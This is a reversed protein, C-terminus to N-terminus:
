SWSSRWTAEAKAIAYERNRKNFGKSLSQLQQMLSRLRNRQSVLHTDTFELESLRLYVAVIQIRQTASKRGEENMKGMEVVLNLINPPGGMNEAAESQSAAEMLPEPLQNHIIGARELLHTARHSTQRLVEVIAEEIESYWDLLVQPNKLSPPSSGPINLKEPSSSPPAITELAVSNYRSSGPDELSVWAPEDDPEEPDEDVDEEADDDIDDEDLDEEPNQDFRDSEANPEEDFDEQLDPEALVMQGLVQLTFQDQSEQALTQLSRQLQERQSYPLKLFADPFSQTSLYYCAAILQRKATEGLRDLYDQYAQQIQEVLIETKTEIGHIDRSLQEISLTM